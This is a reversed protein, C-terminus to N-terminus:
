EDVMVKFLIGGWADGFPEFWCWLGLILGRGASPFWRGIISLNATLAQATGIGIIIASAMILWFCNYVYCASGLMIMGIGTMIYGVGVIKRIDYRDCAAGFILIFIINLPWKAYNVTVGDRLSFNQLTDYARVLAIVYLVMLAKLVAM